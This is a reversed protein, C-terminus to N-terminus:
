ENFNREQKNDSWFRQSLIWNPGGSQLLIAELALPGPSTFYLSLLIPGPNEKEYEKELSRTPKAYRSGHRPGLFPRRGRSILSWWRGMPTGTCQMFILRLGFNYVKLSGLCWNWLTSENQSDFGDPFQNEPPPSPSFGLLFNIGASFILLKHSNALEIEYKTGEWNWCDINGGM